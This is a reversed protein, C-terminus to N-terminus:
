LWSTCSKEKNLTRSKTPEAHDNPNKMRAVVALAESKRNEIGSKDM